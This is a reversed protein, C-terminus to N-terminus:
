LCEWVCMSRVVLDLNRETFDVLWMNLLILYM